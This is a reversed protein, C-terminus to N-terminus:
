LNTKKKPLTKTTHEGVVFLWQWKLVGWCCSLRSLGSALFLRQAHDNYSYNFDKIWVTTDPYIELEEKLSPYVIAYLIKKVPLVRLKLDFWAYKYRLKNVDMKMEGNYWLESTLLATWLRLM